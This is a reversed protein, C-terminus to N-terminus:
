KKVKVEAGEEEGYGEKGPASARLDKCRPQRMRFAIM